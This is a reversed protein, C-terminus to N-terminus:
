GSSSTRRARGASAWWTASPAASAPWCAAPRSRPTRPRGSDTGRFVIVEGRDPQRVDYVIKNVLVRDGVLLTQEMSSSPIFFAQLLFTRILVALCFAVVLLLPLEQWLPMNKRAMAARRRWNPREQPRRGAGYPPQAPRRWHRRRTRAPPEEASPSWSFPNTSYGSDVSGLPYGGPTYGSVEDGIGAPSTPPGSVQGYNSGGVDTRGYDTPRLRYPWLRHPRAIPPAMDPPWLPVAMIPRRIRHWSRGASRPTAFDGHDSRDLLIPGAMTTPGPSRGSDRGAMDRALLRRAPVARVRTGIVPMTGVTIPILSMRSPHHDVRLTRRSLSM